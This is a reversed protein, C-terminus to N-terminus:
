ASRATLAAECAEPAVDDGFKVFLNETYVVPAGDQDRLGRGAFQIAPEADLVEALEEASARPRRGSASAPPPSASCRGCAANAARSSRRCRRSTTARATACPGSSWSTM